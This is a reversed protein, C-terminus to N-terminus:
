QSVDFIKEELAADVNAMLRHPEPPISEAWHKGAVNPPLPDACHASKAVPPPM